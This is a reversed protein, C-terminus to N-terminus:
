ASPPKRKGIMSLIFFILFLLFLVKAIWAALGVIIWFGLIGAIIAIM